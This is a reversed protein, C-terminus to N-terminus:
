KNSVRSYVRAKISQLILRTKISFDPPFQDNETTKYRNSSNDELVICQFIAAMLILPPKLIDLCHEAAVATNKTNYAQENKKADWFGSHNSTSSLNRGVGSKTWVEHAGSLEHPRTQFVQYRSAMCFCKEREGLM